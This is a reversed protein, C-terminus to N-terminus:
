EAAWSCVNDKDAPATGKGSIQRSGTSDQKDPGFSWVKMPLTKVADMASTGPPYPEGYRTVNGSAVDTVTHIADFQIPMGWRDVYTQGNPGKLFEPKIILFPGYTRGSADTLKRGLYKYISDPDFVTDPNEGTGFKGSDPPYQHFTNAYDQAATAIDLLQTQTHLIKPRNSGLIVPLIMALLVLVIAVVVLLELASFGTRKLNRM